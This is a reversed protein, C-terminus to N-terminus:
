NLKTYNFPLFPSTFFPPNSGLFFLREWKPTIRREILPVRCALTEPRIKYDSRPYVLSFLGAKLFNNKVTKNHYKYKSKTKPICLMNKAIQDQAGHLMSLSNRSSM